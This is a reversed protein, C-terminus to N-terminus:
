PTSGGPTGCDGPASRCRHGPSGPLAPRRRPAPPRLSPGPRRPAPSPSAARDRAPARSASSGEQPPPSGGSRPQWCSSLTSFSSESATHSRVLRSHPRRFRAGDQHHSPAPLAPCSGGVPTVTAYFGDACQSSRTGIAPQALQVRCVAQAREAEWRRPKTGQCPGRHPHCFQAPSLKASKHAATPAAHSVPTTAQLPLPPLLSVPAKLWPSLRLLDGFGRLAVSLSLWARGPARPKGSEEQWQQSGANGPHRGTGQWGVM